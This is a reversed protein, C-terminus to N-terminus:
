CGTNAVRDEAFPSRDRVDDDGEEVDGLFNRGLDFPIPHLSVESKGAVVRWDGDPRGVGVAHDRHGLPGTQRGEAQLRPLEDSLLHQIDEAGM